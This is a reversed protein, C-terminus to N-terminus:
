RRFSCMDCLSLEYGEMEGRILAKPDYLSLDVLDEEEHDTTQENEMRWYPHQHRVFLSKHTLFTRFFSCVVEGIEYGLGAVAGGANM